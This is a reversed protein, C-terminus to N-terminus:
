LVPFLAAIKSKLIHKKNVKIKGIKSHIPTEICGV